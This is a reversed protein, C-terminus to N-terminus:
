RSGGEAEHLPEGVAGELRAIAIAYDARARETSTRVDLLVREADLLDLSSLTGATYAAEASRLSQDAQIGLVDRLLRLQQWTLTVRETLEGLSRDIGAVVARKGEDAAHRAQAAEEVGAKLKGRHIPLNVSASVALVDKGNDPPPMALGAADQRLGVATYSLGLTVDPKYEKRALDVLADARAIESDARAMEPRLRLAKARLSDRDLAVRGYGPLTVPGIPTSQPADRLADLAAVLAARRDAIGLLRDDDKTIEAQLKVVAQEIGVGSSYRSRALEEYHLLTQRDSDVVTRWADLFGIEYFLRRTETVFDFRLVEVQADLADAERLAAEERLALKGFWPLRQSLTATVTQPGVRTEPRSLYGTAGLMPDPLAKAQPARQRAARAQAQAAALEPNRALVQTVLEHLAPDAVSAVLSESSAPGPAALSQPSAQAAIGTLGVALGAAVARKLARSSRPREVGRSGKEREKEEKEV